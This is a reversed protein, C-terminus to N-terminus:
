VLLCVFLQTSKSIYIRIWLQVMITKIQALCDAIKSQKLALVWTSSLGSMWELSHIIYFLAVEASKNSTLIHASSLCNNKKNM